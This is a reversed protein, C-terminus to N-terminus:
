FKPHHFRHRNTHDFSEGSCIQSRHFLAIDSQKIKIVTGEKIGRKSVASLFLPFRPHNSKFREWASKLQLLKLPNIPSM